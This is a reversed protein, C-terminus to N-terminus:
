SGTIRGVITVLTMAAEGFTVVFALILMLPTRRGSKGELRHLIGTTASRILPLGLM